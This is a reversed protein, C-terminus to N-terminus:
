NGLEMRKSYHRSKWEAMADKVQEVSMASPKALEVGIRKTQLGDLIFSLYREWMGDIISSCYEDAIGAMVTVVVLDSAAFDDRLYGDRQARYVIEEAPQEIEDRLRLLREGLYDGGVVCERLGRDRSEMSVLERLFFTFGDWSNEFKLAEYAVDIVELIRREFLEEVLAEKSKFRRYVTGVGLGAANAVDDLTVQLGFRAFLVRATELIRERNAEADKRLPRMAVSEFPEETVIKEDVAYINSIPPFRETYLQTTPYLHLYSSWM